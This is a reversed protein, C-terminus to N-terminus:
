ASTNVNPNQNSNNQNLVCPSVNTVEYSGMINSNPHLSDTNTSTINMVELYFSEESERNQYSTKM